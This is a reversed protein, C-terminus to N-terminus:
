TSYNQTSVIPNEIYVIMDEEYLSLKVEEKEIQIGKIEKEHRIVTALVELLISFLLPSLLCAQRIGSRLSFAKLKQGNLIIQNYTEWLHGKNQQLISGRNGAQQSNKIMCPHLVKDFAKEANILIIM